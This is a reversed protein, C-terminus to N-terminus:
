APLRWIISEGGLTYLEVRWPLLKLLGFNPDDIGSYFPAPDFGLPAPITKLLEWIRQKEAPDDEWGATCDIYVPKDKDQIYALSVHPNNQLHKAKPSLRRSVIWGTSGEWVAHVIRSRPRGKRDVTAMACYVAQSLRRMFEAQIEAFDPVEM